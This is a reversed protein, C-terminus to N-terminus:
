LSRVNKIIEETITCVTEGGNSLLPSVLVDWTDPNRLETSHKQFYPDPSIVTESQALIREKGSFQAILKLYYGKGPWPLEISWSSDNKTIDILYPKESSDTVYAKLGLRFPGESELKKMDLESISWFCYAWNYDRLICHIETVNYNKPLPEVGPFQLVDSDTNVITKLFKATNHENAPKVDGEDYIEELAEILEERSLDEYGELNEQKAIYKIEADSLRDINVLNM